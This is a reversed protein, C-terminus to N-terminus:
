LTNFIIQVFCVEMDRLLKSNDPAVKSAANVNPTFRPAMPANTGMPTIGMTMGTSGVNRLSGIRQQVTDMLLLPNVAVSQGSGETKIYRSQRKPAGDKKDSM